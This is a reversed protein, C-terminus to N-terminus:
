AHIEARAGRASKRRAGAQARRRVSRRWVLPADFVERTGRNGPAAGLELLHVVHRTIENLPQAFTTLDYSSWAAQEIDDFGIVCIDAPVRVGFEHRAVDMFGCAILDNICFVADPTSRQTLLSRAAAAGTEYSTRGARWLM